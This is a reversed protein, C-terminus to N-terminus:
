MHPKLRPIQCHQTAARDGPWVLGGAWVLSVLIHTPTHHPHPHPTTHTPAHKAVTLQLKYQYVPVPSFPGSRLAIGLAGPGTRPPVHTPPSTQPGPRRRLGQPEVAAPGRTSFVNHLAMCRTVRGGEGSGVGIM